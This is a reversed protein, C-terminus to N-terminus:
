VRGGVCCWLKKLFKCGKNMHGLSNSIETMGISERWYLNALKGLTFKVESLLFETCWETKNLRTLLTKLCYEISLAIKVYDVVQFCRRYSTTTFGCHIKVQHGTECHTTRKKINRVRQM